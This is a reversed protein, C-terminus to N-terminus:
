IFNDRNWKESNRQIMFSVLQVILELDSESCLKLGEILNTPANNPVLTGLLLYDPTVKLENCIGIFTDFGPIERGREINSIHNNSVNLLEALQRQSLGLSKRRAAIRAGMSILDLQM